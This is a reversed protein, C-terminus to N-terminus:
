KTPPRYETAWKLAAAIGKAREASNQFVWDESHANEKIKLLEPAFEMGFDSPKRGLKEAVIMVTYDGYTPAPVDPALRRLLKACDSGTSFPDPLKLLDAILPGADRGGVRKVLELTPTIAFQAYNTHRRVLRHFVAFDEATGLHALANAADGPWGKGAVVAPDKDIWDMLMTR